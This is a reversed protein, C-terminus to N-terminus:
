EREILLASFRISPEMPQKWRTLRLMDIPLKEKQKVDMERINKLFGWCDFWEGFGPFLEISLSFM